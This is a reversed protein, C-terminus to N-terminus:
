NRSFRSARLPEHSSLFSFVSRENQALKRFVPGLLVAVLPHIPWCQRLLETFEPKAMGAPALQLRWAQGILEEFARADKQPVTEISHKDDGACNTKRAMAVLRLVEDASEEFVIDEYRGRVKEM